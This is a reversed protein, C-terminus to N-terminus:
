VAIAEVEDDVVRVVVVPMVVFTDFYTELGRLGRPHIKAGPIDPHSGGVWQRIVKTPSNKLVKYGVIQLREGNPKQYYGHNEDM